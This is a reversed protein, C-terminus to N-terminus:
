EIVKDILSQTFATGRKIPSNVTKGLLTAFCHPPAGFGPRIVRLNQTNLVEGAQIDEVVYVSRRYQRCALEAESPVTQITGVAKAAQKVQTVMNAFEHPEMSFHSDVGGEDRNLTLHKEIVCAGLATAAVPVAAGMTHDSLGALVNYKISLYPITSINADAYQAPYASTCKLLVIQECGNNRLTAVALAIEEENAMGTSIIVPKGTSAVKKLLGVDTMEFSAIKYIEMDLSALFDVATEDFPSSLPIMGLAYARDFIPKHWEWPTHAEDYLEYLTKDQWAEGTGKVVFDSNDCDITMTDATYTQLKLANAGAKAAAEVIAMAKDLSQNHNGSLEAIVFPSHDMGIIANSLHIDSKNTLSM